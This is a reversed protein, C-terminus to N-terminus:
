TLPGGEENHIKTVPDLYHIENGDYVSIIYALSMDMERERERQM